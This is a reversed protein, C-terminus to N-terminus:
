QIRHEKTAHLKGLREKELKRAVRLYKKTLKVIAVKKTELKKGLAIKQQVTLQSLSLGGTLKKAMKNRAMMGAKAQIEKANKMKKAKIKAKRARKKATRKAIRGMKLRQTITLAETFDKFSKRVDTNIDETKMSDQGSKVAKIWELAAPNLRRAWVTLTGSLRSVDVKGEVNNVVEHYHISGVLSKLRKKVAQAGKWSFEVVADPLTRARKNNRAKAVELTTEIFVVKVDYGSKKLMNIIRTTKKQDGSTSDVIVGLRANVVSTLHRDTVAKAAYRAVERAEFENAPMKLSLGKRKMLHMFYNDSNVVKLGMSALGLTAAVKSKGSGPGGALIIAKFIGPDNIGEDLVLTEERYNLIDM